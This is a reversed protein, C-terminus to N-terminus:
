TDKVGPVGAVPPHSKRYEQWSERAATLVTQLLERLTLRDVDLLACAQGETLEGAQWATIVFCVLAFTDARDWCRERADKEKTDRSRPM